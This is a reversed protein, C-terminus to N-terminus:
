ALSAMSLNDPVDKCRNGGSRHKVPLRGIGRASVFGRSPAHSEVVAFIPGPHFVQANDHLDAQGHGAADHEAKENAPENVSPEAGTANEDGYESHQANDSAGVDDIALDHFNCGLWRGFVGVVVMGVIVSVM